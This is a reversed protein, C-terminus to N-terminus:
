DRKLHEIGPWVSRVYEEAYGDPSDEFQASIDDFVDVREGKPGVLAAATAGDVTVMRWELTAADRLWEGVAAAVPMLIDYAGPRERPPLAHWWRAVDDAKQPTDDDGAAVGVRECLEIFRALLENIAGQEDYTLPRPAAHGVRGVRERPVPTGGTGESGVEKKAADRPRHRGHSPM